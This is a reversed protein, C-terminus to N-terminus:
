DNRNIRCIKLNNEINEIKVDKPIIEIEKYAIAIVRLAKNAMKENEKLIKEKSIGICRNLLVDPAGKTIVRYKGNPLKHITTM